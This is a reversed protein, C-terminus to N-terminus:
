RGLAKRVAEGMGCREAAQILADIEAPATIEVNVDRASILVKGRPLPACVLAQAYGRYSTVDLVVATGVKTEYVKGVKIKAHQM